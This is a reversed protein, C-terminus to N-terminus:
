LIRVKEKKSFYIRYYKLASKKTFCKLLYILEVKQIEKLFEKDIEKTTNNNLSLKASNILRVQIETPTEVQVVSINFSQKLEKLLQAKSLAELNGITQNTIM